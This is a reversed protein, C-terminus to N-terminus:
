NLRHASASPIPHNSAATGGDAPHRNRVIRDEVECDGKIGACV